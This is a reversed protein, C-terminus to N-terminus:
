WGFAAIMIAAACATGLVAITAGRATTYARIFGDLEPDGTEAYRSEHVVNDGEVKVDEEVVFTSLGPALVACLIFFVMQHVIVALGFAAVVWVVSFADDATIFLFAGGSAMLAVSVAGWWLRTLKGLLAQRQEEFESQAM